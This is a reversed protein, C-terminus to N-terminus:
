QKEIARYSMVILLLSVLVSAFVLGQIAAQWVFFTILVFAAIAAILKIQMLKKIAHTEYYYAQLMYSVANLLAVLFLWPLLWSYERYSEGVLWSFIWGHLFELAIFVVGIFALVMALYRAKVYRTDAKGGAFLLPYFYTVAAQLVMYVPMFGIQFLVFYAGLYAEGHFWELAIREYFTLFWVLFGIVIATYGSFANTPLLAESSEKEHTKIGLFIYIDYLVAAMFGLSFGVLIALASQQWFVFLVFALLFRVWQMLNVHIACAFRNGTASLFAEGVTSAALFIMFIMGAYFEAWHAEQLYVYSVAFVLLFVMALTQLAQGMLQVCVRKQQKIQESYRLIAAALSEKVVYQFLTALTVYLAVRGYDAPSVHYSLISVGLVAGVASLLYGMYHIIAKKV